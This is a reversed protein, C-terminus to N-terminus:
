VDFKCKCDCLIHKTLATLENIGAIINLFNLNVDEAKNPVYIKSSLDDLTNCSGNCRDVKFLFPYYHLGQNNEDPNLDILTPRIMSPQNSFSICNSNAHDSVKAVSALSVSSSLLKIIMKKILGIM